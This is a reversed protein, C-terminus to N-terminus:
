IYSYIPKEYKIFCFTTQIHLVAIYSTLAHIHILSFLKSRLLRHITDWLKKYACQILLLLFASISHNIIFVSVCWSTPRNIASINVYHPHIEPELLYCRLLSNSCHYLTNMVCVGNNGYNPIFHLYKFSSAQSTNFNHRMSVFCYSFKHSVTIYTWIFIIEPLQM